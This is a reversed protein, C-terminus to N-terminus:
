FTFDIINNILTLYNIINPSYLKAFRVYISFYYRVIELLLITAVKYYIIADSNYSLSGSPSNRIKFINLFSKNYNKCDPSFKWYSTFLRKSSVKLRSFLGKLSSLIFYSFSKSSTNEYNKLTGQWQSNCNLESFSSYNPLHRSM